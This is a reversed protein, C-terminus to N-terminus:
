EEASGSFKRHYRERKRQGSRVFLFALYLIIGSPVLWSLISFAPTGSSIDLILTLSSIALVFVFLVKIPRPYKM